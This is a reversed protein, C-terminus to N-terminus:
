RVVWGVPLQNKLRGGVLRAWGLPHSHHCVLVWPKERASADLGASQALSEGKLYRWADGETLEVSFCVDGKALGMALAHSPTFRDKAVSGVHWGTRAVRLGSLEPAFPAVYINLGQIIINEQQFQKCLFNQCFAQFEKASTNNAVPKRQAAGIKGALKQTLVEDSNKELLAVFHGEGPSLHPWVRATFPLGADLEKVQPLGLADHDISKLSFDRHRELFFRVVDENETTNFTCTSYVLLGGPKLMGAAHHLIEKQMASCVEPKNAAYAKVVDKDRRFMGEGSCPADVLVRDFYGGFRQALKWPQETLVIANTVGAREINKVLAHIRSPSSDNSVLLGEGQLHGAIQTSKGGPAACLDLVKMGTEVGLIEVPLMASPEQIYFIGAHYSITKAPRADPPYTFGEPCWPLSQCSKDYPACMEGSISKKLRNLRIAKKSQDDYSSIFPVYEGGLLQKMQNIFIEPLTVSM